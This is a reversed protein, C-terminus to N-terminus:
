EMCPHTYIFICDSTLRSLNFNLITTLPSKRFLSIIPYVQDGINGIIFRFYNSDYAELLLAITFWNTKMPFNRCALAFCLTNTFDSILYQSYNGSYQLLKPLDNINFFDIYPM